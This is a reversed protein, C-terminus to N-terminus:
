DRYSAALGEDLLQQNLYVGNELTESPTKVDPGYFVDAVYRDYKDTRDTSLVVFCAESLTKDVFDRTRVGEDTSLEPADIGRLRLRQKIWVGFGCDVDTFLTDGDIVRVVKARYTYLRMPDAKISTFRYAPGGSRDSQVMMTGSAEELDDQDAEYRIGFGLDLGIPSEPTEQLLRYTYLRGHRPKLLPIDAIQKRLIKVIGHEVAQVKIAATLERTTWGTSVAAALYAQRLDPDPIAALHRYHTWGLTGRAHFIPFSEYFLLIDYILSRSMGLDNALQTMVREGYGTVTTRAQLHAHLTKGAEWYTRVKEREVAARAREKGTEIIALIEARLSLYADPLSLSTM